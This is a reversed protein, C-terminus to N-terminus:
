HGAAARKLEYYFFKVGNLKAPRERWLSDLCLQLRDGELRYIGPWTIDNGFDLDIHKPDTSPDTPKTTRRALQCRCTWVRDYHKV